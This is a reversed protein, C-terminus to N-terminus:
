IFTEKQTHAHKDRPSQQKKSFSATTEKKINDCGNKQDSWLLQERLVYNHIWLCLCFEVGHCKWGDRGLDRINNPFFLGRQKHKNSLYVLRVDALIISRSLMTWFVSLQTKVFAVPLLSFVYPPFLLLFNWIVHQMGSKYIASPM